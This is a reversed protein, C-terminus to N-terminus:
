SRLSAAMIWGDSGDEYYKPSRRLRRFGFKEYLRIAATNGAKVMLFFRSVGRLLLRRRTSKILASAIGKGREAPDVTISVLEAREGKVCTVIYGCIKAAGSTQGVKPGPAAVLFLNERRASLEAFLKRSYADKGFGLHEMELVRDLDAIRFRRIQFPSPMAEGEIKFAKRPIPYGLRPQLTWETASGQCRTGFKKMTFYHQLQTDIALSHPLVAGATGGPQNVEPPAFRSHHVADIKRAVIRPTQHLKAKQRAGPNGRTLASGAAIRAHELHIARLDRKAAFRRHPDADPQILATLFKHAITGMAACRRRHRKPWGPALGLADRQNARRIGALGREKIAESTQPLLHGIERADCYLLVCTHNLQGVPPFDADDIQGAHITKTRARFVLLNGVIHECAPPAASRWVRNQQHEVRRIQAAM